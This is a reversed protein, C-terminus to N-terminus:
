SVCNALQSLIVGLPNQISAQNYQIYMHIAESSFLSMPMVCLAALIIPRGVGLREFRLLLAIVCLARVM